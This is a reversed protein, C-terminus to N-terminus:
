KFLTKLKKNSIKKSLVIFFFIIAFSDKLSRRCNFANIILILKNLLTPHELLISIKNNIKISKIIEYVQNAYNGRLIALIRKYYSSLGVNVGIENHGHQRYNLYANKDIIWVYSKHRAFAYIFWDHSIINEISKFNLDIFNKLDLFGKKTILFTSGPGPSQFLYDYKKQKPNKNVYKKKGNNCFANFCSSYFDSKNLLIRNVASILKNKEWLDDQDSFGFYDYNLKHINKIMYFFNRAGSNFRNKSGKIFNINQINKNLKIIKLTNDSSQDDSIFLDVNVNHQQFISNIQDELWKEGNYTALLIAIKPKIM